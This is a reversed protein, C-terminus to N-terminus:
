YSALAKKYDTYIELFMDFGSTKLTYTVDSSPKLLKFHASKYSGDMMGRKMANDNESSAERLLNFIKHFTQLGASSLYKVNTLDLLLNRMGAQHAEVVKAQLEEYSASDIDGEIQFVTVPVRAQEESILIKM